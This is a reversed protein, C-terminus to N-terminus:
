RNGKRPKLTGHEIGRLLRVQAEAKPKTTSKAVIRGANRVRYRNKHPLKRMTVPM